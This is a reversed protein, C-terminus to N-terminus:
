GCYSLTQRRSRSRSTCRTAGTLLRRKELSEHCVEILRLLITDSRLLVTGVHLLLTGDTDRESCAEPTIRQLLEQESSRHSPKLRFEAILSSASVHALLAICFSRPRM